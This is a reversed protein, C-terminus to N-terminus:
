EQEGVAVPGVFVTVVPKDFVPDTVTVHDDRCIMEVTTASDATDEVTKAIALEAQDLGTCM